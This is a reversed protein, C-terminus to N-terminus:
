TLIIMTSKAYIKCDVSHIRCGDTTPLWAAEAVCGAKNLGGLKLTLEYNMTLNQIYEM